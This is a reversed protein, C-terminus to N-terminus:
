VHKKREMFINAQELAIATNAEMISPLKEVLSQDHMAANILDKTLLVLIEKALADRETFDPALKPAQPNFQRNFAEVSECLICLNSFADPAEFPEGCGKCKHLRLM